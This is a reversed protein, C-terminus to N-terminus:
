YNNLLDVITRVEEDTMVPSMPLSMITKHIEETIPFSQNNWETYAGQKHPPTPYHINTQVDNDNL